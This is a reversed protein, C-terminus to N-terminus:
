KLKEVIQIFNMGNSAKILVIDGQKVLKTVERVIDETKNYEQVEITPDEEKVVKAINKAEIGATILVDVKNKIVEEGVKKHLEKSFEGLELMDGLIAVKRKDKFASLYKLSAQMSDLSANYVDNIVTIGQQKNEIIEMRNKTLSFEEIGQKIDSFPIQNNVGVCIACLSNYIFHEGGVPVMVNQIKGEVQIQYISKEKEMIINQPMVDSLNHIGYTVISNNQRNEEAWKHLLDNDNNLIVIGNEQMGELIELKAKLINERSGLNGIHSTGINTIVCMTPHAINSLERIEGLNNMGMEVVLAEHDKLALITLPLGIHNNWNGKTKLTRYKKSMVSAVIDKTSTKGVSGTIGVVPISYLNRKYQALKQIAKISNKVLIIASNSYKQIVEQKICNRDLICAKAGAELAKDYFENGDFTEGQIGVYVDGKQIQRTDKSFNECIMNSDGELLKGDCIRVIDGVTIKKM